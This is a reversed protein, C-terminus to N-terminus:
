PPHSIPFDPSFLAGPVEPIAQMARGGNHLWWPDTQVSEKKNTRNNVVGGLHSIPFFPFFSFFHSHVCWSIRVDCCHLSLCERGKEVAVKMTKYLYKKEYCQMYVYIHPRRSWKPRRGEQTQRDWVLFGRSRTNGARQSQVEANGIAGLQM